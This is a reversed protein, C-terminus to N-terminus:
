VKIGTALSFRWSLLQALGVSLLFQQEWEAPQSHKWCRAYAQGPISDIIRDCESLYQVGLFLATWAKGQLSQYKTQFGSKTWRCTATAWHYLIQRGFYSVCFFRIQDRGPDPPNGPTPFPLGSWYEQMSFEMSLPAQHPWLSDSMVSCLM